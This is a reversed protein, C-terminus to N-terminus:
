KSSLGDVDDAADDTPEVDPDRDDEDPINTTIADTAADGTLEDDPEKDAVKM